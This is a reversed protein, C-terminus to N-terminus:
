CQLVDEAGHETCDCLSTRRQSRRRALPSSALRLGIACVLWQAAALRVLLATEVSFVANWVAPWTVLTRIRSFAGLPPLAEQLTRLAIPILVANQMVSLESPPVVRTWLRTQPRMPSALLHATTPSAQCQPQHQRLPRRPHPLLLQLPLAMLWGM